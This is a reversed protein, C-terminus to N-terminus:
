ARLARDRHSRVMECAKDTVKERDAVFAARAVACKVRVEVLSREKSGGVM